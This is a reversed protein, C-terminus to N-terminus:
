SVIIKSKYIKLMHDIKKSWDFESKIRELGEIGMSKAKLPNIAISNIAMVLNDIFNNENSGVDVLIGSDDNIYDKPGGWNTAIVPKGMAMAELVVAGGCEYVSPLILCNADAILQPCKDQSVFGHFRIKDEINLKHTLNELEVRKNGEGVIHLLLDPVNCKAIAKLLIDVRKWDVLRGVYILTFNDNEKKNTKLETSKFLRLDVGNEIVVRIDTCKTKPLAQKTRENSVLLTDAYYKGPILRNVTNSAARALKIFYKQISGEMYSFAKPYTMGGNMPGFIVPVGMNYILSPFKPSVRIPVHVINIPNCKIIEKASAKLTAETVLDLLLGFTISYIRSPLYTSFKYLFKHLWTDKIFIIDKLDGHFIINLEDKTREHVVMKVPTKKEKLGKYYHLPLVSEGGFSASAQIAVILVNPIPV